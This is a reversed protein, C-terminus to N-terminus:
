RRVAGIRLARGAVRLPRAFQPFLARVRGAAHNGRYLSAPEAHGPEEVEALAQQMVAFIDTNDVFPGRVPDSGVIRDLLAASGSGRAFLPVLSNTHNGSNHKMAPMRGVTQDVIPDFPKNESDPGWVLGTEHDATVILLTEEWSSHSEVWHVVAEIARNFDIQEEIMRGPQRAHNAWDIAGGEVMLFFGSPNDDLVNLAARTMTELTPVNATLPDDLPPDGPDAGGRRQQLTAAVQATGLVRKPTPGTTLLEFEARTSIPRFGRYTGSPTSRAAEIAEWTEKGGVFEYVLPQEVPRGDDDFDPNGAGMIVDLLGSTLMQNAIEAYNNRSTTQAGGLAAPTAHSWQVSTVIGVAKGKSKALQAITPQIPENTDSWNIAANYTKRGTALASAAAASDTYGSRLWDYGGSRDWAKAPDYVVAPDQQNAGTPKKADLLPYTTCALHIWGPQDYVQTSTGRARDWKGQYMSAALWTNYGAGDSIMLIVNRTQGAAAQDFLQGGAAFLMAFGAAWAFFLRRSFTTIRQQM